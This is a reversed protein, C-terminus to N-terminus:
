QIFSVNGGVANLKLDINEYGRKIQYADLITTVGKACMGSNILSAGCRIDLARVSAGVIKQNGTIIILNKRKIISAGLKSLETIYQYRNKFRNDSIISKGNAFLAYSAFIPQLDSQIKPYPGTKLNFSLIKNNSVILDKDDVFIEAGTKKLLNIENKLSAFPFDLIKLEKGNTAGIITYTFAEIIDNMLPHKAGILSESGKVRITNNNFSIKAGTKNLLNIMDIVEPRIHANEIFTEGKITSCMILACFTGGTSVKQLKLKDVKIKKRTEAIIYGEEFYITVGFKKFIYEYVDFGRKGIKCGGPLPVKVIQNNKILSALILPTYRISSENYTVENSLSSNQSITLKNKHDFHINKGLNKIMELCTRVDLLDKPFNTLVLKEKIILSIILGVIASIKSGSLEISGSLRPAPNVILKTYNDNM